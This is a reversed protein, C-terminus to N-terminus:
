RPNSILLHQYLKMQIVAIALHLCNVNKIFLKIISVVKKIRFVHNHWMITLVFQKFWELAPYLEYIQYRKDNHIYM